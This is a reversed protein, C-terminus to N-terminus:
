FIFWDLNINRFIIQGKSIIDITHDSNISFIRWEGINGFLKIMQEKAIDTLKLRKGKVMFILAKQLVEM